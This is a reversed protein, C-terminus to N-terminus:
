AQTPAQTPAAAPAGGCAALLIASATLIIALMLFFTKNM